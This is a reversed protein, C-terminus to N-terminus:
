AVVARVAVNLLDATIDQRDYHGGNAKTLRTSTAQM